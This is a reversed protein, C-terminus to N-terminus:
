TKLKVYSGVLILEKQVRRCSGHLRLQIWSLAIGVARWMRVRGGSRALVREEDLGPGESERWRVKPSHGLSGKVARM